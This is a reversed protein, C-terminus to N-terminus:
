FANLINSASATRLLWYGNIGTSSTVRFYLNGSSVYASVSGIPSSVSEGNKSFYTATNDYKQYITGSGFAGGQGANWHFSYEVYCKLDAGWGTAILVDYNQVGALSFYGGSGYTYYGGLRTVGNVELKSTPNLAGVGVRGGDKVLAVNPVSTPYANNVYLFSVDGGTGVGSSHSPRIAFDYGDVGGSINAAGVKIKLGAYETAGQIFLATSSSGANIRVKGEVTNNGTGGSAVTTGICVVGTTDILMRTVPTGGAFASTGFALGIGNSGAPLFSIDGSIYNGGGSWGGINLTPNGSPYWTGDNLQLLLNRTDAATNKTIHLMASPSNNGIGVMGTSTIRVREGVTGANKTYFELHGSNSGDDYGGIMAATTTAPSSFKLYSSSTNPTQITISGTNDWLPAGTSLDVPYLSGDTINLGSFSSPQLAAPQLRTLAM